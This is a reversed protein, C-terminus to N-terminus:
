RCVPPARSTLSAAFFTNPISDPDITRRLKASLLSLSCTSPLLGATFADSASPKTKQDAQLTTPQSQPIGQCHGACVRKASCQHAPNSRENQEQAFQQSPQCCTCTEQGSSQRQCCSQNSASPCQLAQAASDNPNNNCTCVAFTALVPAAILWLAFVTSLFRTWKVATRKKM